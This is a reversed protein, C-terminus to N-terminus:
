NNSWDIRMLSHDAALHRMGPLIEPHKLAQRLLQLLMKRLLIRLLLIRPLRMRSDQLQRTKRPSAEVPLMSLTM